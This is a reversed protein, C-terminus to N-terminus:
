TVLVVLSIVSPVLIPKLVTWRMILPYHHAVLMMMSYSIYDVCIKISSFSFFLSSTTVILTVLLIWEQYSICFDLYSLIYFSDLYIELLMKLICNEMNVNGSWM